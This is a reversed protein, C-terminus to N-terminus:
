LVVIVAGLQLAVVAATVAVVTGSSATVHGAALGRQRRIMATSVVVVAMAALIAAVVRETGTASQRVMLVAVVVTALATRWHALVTREAQLGAALEGTV